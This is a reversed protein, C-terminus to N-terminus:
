FYNKSAAFTPPCNDTKLLPSVFFQLPMRGDQAEWLELVRTLRIPYERSVTLEFLTSQSKSIGSYTQRTM